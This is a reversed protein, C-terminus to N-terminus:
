NAQSTMFDTLLESAEELSLKNVDVKQFIHKPRVLLKLLEALEEDKSYNELDVFRGAPELSLNAKYRLPKGSDTLLAQTFEEVKKESDKFDGKYFYHIIAKGVLSENDKFDETAKTFEIFKLFNIDRKSKISM